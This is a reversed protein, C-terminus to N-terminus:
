AQRQKGRNKTGAIYKEVADTSIHGATGVYYSPSWLHGGGWFEKKKLKPFEQFVRRASMGKLTKALETPAVKPPASLFLHSPAPMVELAKIEWGKTEAITRLVQELFEKIPSTLVAKRYKPCWIIHYYIEYVSSSSTKHV